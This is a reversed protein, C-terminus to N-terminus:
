CNIFRSLCVGKGLLRINELPRQIDLVMTRGFSDSKEEAEFLGGVWCGLMPLSSLPFRFFSSEKKMGEEQEGGLM